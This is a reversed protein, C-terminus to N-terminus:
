LLDDPNIFGGGALLEIARDYDESRVQLRAAQGDGTSITLYETNVVCEIGNDLLFSKAIALDAEFDSTKVTLLDNM